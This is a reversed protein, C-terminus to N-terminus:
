GLVVAEEILGANLSLVIELSIVKDDERIM